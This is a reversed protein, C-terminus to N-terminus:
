RILHCLLFFDPPRPPLNSWIAFCGNKACLAESGYLHHILRMSNRNGDAPSPLNDRAVEFNHMANRYM